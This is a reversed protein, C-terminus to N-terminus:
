PKLSVGWARPHGLAWGKYGAVNARTASIRMESYTVIMPVDARFLREMDDLLPQRKEPETIEMTKALLALAERNEWVKRPQEAKTGSFMEFSLAPDLRASFNFSMMQYEGSLYRDQQAGWDLVELEINIGAERAMAQAVIANNYMAAYQKNALMKMPQGKYGAEALLRKAEALDRRSIESQLPGRYASPTPLPSNNPKAQGETTANVLEEMDLSLLFAKRIRVDALLSDKTQFLFTNTNMLATAQLKLNPDAKYEALNALEIDSIVDIKGTQLAVKATSVDPIVVFQVGAIQATKNGTLGDREGALPQYNDNRALEVMQGRKWAGLKFPGTAVPERWQGDPGISSRHFIGTGGCDPRALTALFVASPKELSYVVTKADPAAVGTVKVAGRGDVDQLCRWGTAPTTYRKWSFLVDESTLPEGNSFRLRDRLVFSYTKGDPSIDISKALMPGVSSNERFAVLGEFLHAQVADTNADRNVGPDLSRIDAKLGIRLTDPEALVPECLLCSALALFAFSRM